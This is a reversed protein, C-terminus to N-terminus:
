FLLRMVKAEVNETTNLALYKVCMFVLVYYNVFFNKVFHALIQEIGKALNTYLLEKAIVKPMSLTCGCNLM